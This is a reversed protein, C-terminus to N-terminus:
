NHAYAARRARAARNRIAKQDDIDTATGVWYAIRGSHDRVPVSRGLQWRYAADQARKWRYEIEYRVGPPYPSEEWREIAPLADNPHLVYGSGWGLSREEAVGGSTNQVLEPQSLRRVAM